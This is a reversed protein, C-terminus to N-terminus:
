ELAMSGLASGSSPAQDMAQYVTRYQEVVGDLVAPHSAVIFELNHQPDSPIPVQEAWAKNRSSFRGDWALQQVTNALVWATREQGYELLVSDLCDRDLYAGDFHKRVAEEIAETCAINARHSARWLPLEDRRRAEEASYPYLPMEHM